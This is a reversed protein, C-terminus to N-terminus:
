NTIVLKQVVIGREDHVRVFYIGNDLLVPLIQGSSVGSRELVQKGELNYVSIRATGQIGKFQIEHQAPNPYLQILPDDQVAIGNLLDSQVVYIYSNNWNCQYLLNGDTTLGLNSHVCWSDPMGVNMTELNDPNVYFSFDNFPNYATGFLVGNVFELGTTNYNTYVGLHIFQHTSKVFKTRMGYLQGVFYITDGQMAFDMIEDAPNWGISYKAAVTNSALNLQYLTDDNFRVAWLYGNDYILAEFPIGNAPFPYVFSDVRNGNLDYKYLVDADLTPGGVWLGSGDWAIGVPHIYPNYAGPNVNISDVITCSQSFGTLSFLLSFFSFLLSKM